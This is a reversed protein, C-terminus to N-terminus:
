REYGAENLFFEISDNTNIRYEGNDGTVQAVESIQNGVLWQAVEELFQKSYSVFGRRQYYGLVFYGMMDAPIAPMPFNKRKEEPFGLETLRRAMEVSSLIITKGAEWDIGNWEFEGFGLMESLNKMIWMKENSVTLGIVENVMIGCAFFVGLAWSTQENVELFFQKDFRKPFIEFKNKDLALLRAESKTRARIQCKNLAYSVGARTADYSYGIELMSLEQDIYM